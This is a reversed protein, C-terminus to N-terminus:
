VTCVGGDSSLLETGAWGGVHRAAERIRTQVDDADFEGEGHRVQDAFNVLVAVSLTNPAAGLMEVVYDLTSPQLVFGYVRLGVCVRLPPPTFISACM